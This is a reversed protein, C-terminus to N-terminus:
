PTPQFVWVAAPERATARVAVFLRDIEPVFFSTRAGTVTPVRAIRAYGTGREEFVDVAGEGCSVYIRHRKSDVFVDDTDGCLDLNALVHGDRADFAMLRAPERFGVIVRAAESDFAMPFNARADRAPWTMVQKESTIDIVAIHKADPVNVFIRGGARDIQFSEPHGQLPINAIKARSSPDVVSLAGDGYGIYVRNSQTDVRINDADDDLEIRGNPTLEAGQFLHVSGDGANAVYLTDTSRVYGVGQPASLGTITRSLKREKLDIVGVSDNGLEAVFLRQRDLDIAFHDIRGKVDGLPIKTELELPPPGAAHAVEPFLWLCLAIILPATASPM